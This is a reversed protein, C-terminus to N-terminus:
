FWHGTGDQLHPTLPDRVLRLVAQRHRVRCWRPRLRRRSPPGMKEEYFATQSETDEAQAPRSSQSPATAGMSTDTHPAGATSTHLRSALPSVACRCPPRASTASRAPWTDHSDRSHALCVARPLKAPCFCTPTAPLMKRESDSTM